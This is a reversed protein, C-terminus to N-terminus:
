GLYIGWGEGDNGVGSEQSGVAALHVLAGQPLTRFARRLQDREPRKWPLEDRRSEVYRLNQEAKKERRRAEELVRGLREYEDLLEEGNEYGILCGVPIEALREEEEELVEELDRLRRGQQFRLLSSRMVHLVRAAEPPDWLNLV